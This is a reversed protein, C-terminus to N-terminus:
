LMYCQIRPIGRKLKEVKQAYKSALEYDGKADAAEFAAMCADFRLSPNITDINADILMLAARFEGQGILEAGRRLIEFGQQEMTIM